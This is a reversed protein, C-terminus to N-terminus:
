RVVLTNVPINESQTYKQLASSAWHSRKLCEFLISVNQSERKRIVQWKYRSFVGHTWIHKLGIGAQLSCIQSAYVDHDYTPLYLWFSCRVPEM